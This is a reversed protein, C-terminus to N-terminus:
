RIINMLEEIKPLNELNQLLKLSDERNKSPVVFRACDRYKLAIEEDSM